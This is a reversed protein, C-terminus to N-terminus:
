RDWPIGLRVRIASFSVDFVEALGEITAEDTGVRSIYEEIKDVPMLIDAALRNAEIEYESSLGSRYLTNEPFEDGIKEKHLLFHALEHAITFRRRTKPERENTVIFYGEERKEIKGSIEKHMPRRVVKEIGLEKALSVVDVPKEILSKYSNRIAEKQHPMLEYDDLANKIM